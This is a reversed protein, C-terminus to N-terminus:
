KYFELYNFKLYAKLGIIKYNQETLTLINQNTQAVQTSNGILTWTLPFVLYSKYTYKNNKSKFKNYLDKSIEIYINENTKKAFYRTFNGLEYDKDTPSPKQYFPLISSQTIDVKKLKNYVDNGKVYTVKSPSPLPIKPIIELIESGGANPNKKSFFDGRSNKWYYGKYEKKTSKLQLQGGQTYLDTKVQSKPYYTM